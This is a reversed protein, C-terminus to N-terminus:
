AAGLANVHHRLMARDGGVPVIGIVDFRVPVDDVDHEGLYALAVAEFLRRKAAECGFDAFGDGSVGVEVFALTGDVDYAVIDAVGAECPWDQDVIEYGKLELYRAAALKARVDLLVDSRKREHTTTARHEMTTAAM